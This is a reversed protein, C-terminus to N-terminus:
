AAGVQGPISRNPATITFCSTCGTCFPKDPCRLGALVWAITAPDLSAGPQAAADEIDRAFQDASIRIAVIEIENDQMRQSNVYRWQRVARTAATVRRFVHSPRERSLGEPLRLHLFPRVEEFPGRAEEIKKRKEAFMRENADWSDPM